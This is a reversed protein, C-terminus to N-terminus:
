RSPALEHTQNLTQFQTAATLVISALRAVTTPVPKSYDLSAAEVASAFAIRYQEHTTAFSIWEAQTIRKAKYLDAVAQTASDVAFGVTALSKYATTQPSPSQCGCLLLAALFPLLYVRINNKM